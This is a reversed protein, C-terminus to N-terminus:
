LRLVVRVRLPLPNLSLLVAQIPVGHIHTIRMYILVMSLHSLEVKLQNIIPGNGRVLQVHAFTALLESHCM